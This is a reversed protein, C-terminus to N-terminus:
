YGKPMVKEKIKMLGFTSPSILLCFIFGAITEKRSTAILQSVQLDFFHWGGGDLHLSLQDSTM